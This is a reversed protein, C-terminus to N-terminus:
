NKWNQLMGPSQYQNDAVPYWWSSANLFPEQAGFYPAAVANEFSTQSTYGPGYQSGFRRSFRRPGFGRSFRRSPGFRRPGFRRAFKRSSKRFRGFGNLCKCDDSKKSKKHSKSKKPSKKTKIHKRTSFQRM